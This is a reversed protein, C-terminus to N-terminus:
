KREELIHNIAETVEEDTLGLDVVIRAVNIAAAQAPPHTEKWRDNADAISEVIARRLVFYAELVSHAINLLAPTDINAPDCEAAVFRLRGAADRIREREDEDLKGHLRETYYNAM